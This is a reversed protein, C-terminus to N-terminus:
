KQGVCFIIWNITETIESAIHNFLTWLRTEPELGYKDLASKKVHRRGKGWWQCLLFKTFTLFILSQWQEGRGAIMLMKVIKRDNPASHLDQAFAATMKFFRIGAKVSALHNSTLNSLCVGIYCVQTFCEWLSRTSSYQGVILFCSGLKIGLIQIIQSTFMLFM